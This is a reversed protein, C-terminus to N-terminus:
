MNTRVTLLSAARARTRQTWTVTVLIERRDAAIAPYTVTITENPLVYTGVIRAYPTPNGGGGNAVGAPFNGAIATFATAQIREMMDRLDEYAIREQRAQESLLNGSLYMLLLGSSATVLVFLSVLLEILTNGRQHRATMKM